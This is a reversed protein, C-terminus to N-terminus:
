LLWGHWGGVAHGHSAHAFICHIATSLPEATFLEVVECDIGDSMAHVLDSVVQRKAPRADHPLWGFWRWDKM